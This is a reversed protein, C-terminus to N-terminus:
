RCASGACRSWAHLREMLQPLEPPLDSPPRVQWLNDLQGPDATMDYLERDALQGRDYYETFMWRLTRLVAYPVAEGSDEDLFEVLLDRRWEGPPPPSAGLLPTISRGDVSPPIPVGALELFTPTFDVNSVFHERTVGSPVGPGRVVLPMRISEEYPLGKGEAYRHEGLQFGNDSTFLILTDDLAGTQGLKDVIREMLEDVALMSQLRRRYLKDLLRITEDDFLPKRQVWSPKDRIDAENFAPGRPAAAQPLAAGHRPAALAPKHPAILSLLMFFPKRDQATVARDIFDLAHRGLVDTVYDEERAGRYVQQGNVNMFYEFYTANVLPVYWEDWGPPVYEPYTAQPYGNLYKGLLVTRYGAARLWVAVTRSEGGSRYFAEHGGTPNSNHHVGHNHPYQGTLISVRSPCCLPASVYARSFSTGRAALLAQLRPMFEISRADLDDTLVLLINPRRPPPTPSPAPMPPALPDRGCAIGFVALM